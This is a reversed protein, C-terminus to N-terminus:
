HNITFGLILFVSVLTHLMITSKIAPILKTAEEDSHAYLTKIAKFGLPLTFLSFLSLLPLHHYIVGMILAIFSLLILLIYIPIRKGLHVVLTNKGAQKDTVFDPFGNIYLIAAVLGTLPLAAIVATLNLTQTQVYYAGLVALVGFNLGVLMEGMGRSHFSFPPASYFYGSLVGILGIWLLPLGRAWVLFLGISVAISLLLLGYHYTEKASLIGKQIMRSGGAFPTLPTKNLDDAKNLHDFYDNIVNIGAHTFLGAVLAAGFYFPLFIGQLHNAIATGLLIPLIIITFFQPRTAKIWISITKKTM